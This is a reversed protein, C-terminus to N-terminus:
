AKCFQMDHTIMIHLDYSKVKCKYRSNQLHCLTHRTVQHDTTPQREFRQLIEDLIEHMVVPSLGADAHDNYVPRFMWQYGAVTSM